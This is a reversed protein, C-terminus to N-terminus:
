NRLKRRLAIIAGKAANEVEYVEDKEIIEINIVKAIEIM